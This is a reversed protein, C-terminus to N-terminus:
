MDQRKCSCCRECVPIQNGALVHQLAIIFSRRLSLQQADPNHSIVAVCMAVGSTRSTYMQYGLLVGALTLYRLTCVLCPLSQLAVCVVQAKHLSFTIVCVQQHSDQGFAQQANHLQSTLSKVQKELNGM